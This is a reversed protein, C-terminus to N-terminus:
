PRGALADDLAAVVADLDEVESRDSRISPRWWSSQHVVLADETLTYGTISSWPRIRRVMPRERVLGADTVRFTRPATLGALPAWVYLLWYFRGVISNDYLYGLAIAGLGVATALAAIAIATYRWRRPWRAEWRGFTVTDVLRAATYRNRSMRALLLGLLTGGAAGLIPAMVSGAPPDVAPEVAALVGIFWVIPLVALLWCAAHRGVRVAIGDVRSVFLGALVAIVTTAVLLGVYHTAPGSLSPAVAILVTPALLAAVYLGAVIAYEHDPRADPSDM